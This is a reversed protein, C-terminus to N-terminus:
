DVDVHFLELKPPDGWYQRVVMLPKANTIFARITIQNNELQEMDNPTVERLWYTWYELEEDCQHAYFMRGDHKVTFSRPGNFELYTTVPKFDGLISADLPLWM